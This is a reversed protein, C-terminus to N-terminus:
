PPRTIGKSSPRNCRRASQLNTPCLLGSLGLKSLTRSPRLMTGRSWRGSSAPFTKPRGIQLYAAVYATRLASPNAGFADWHIGDDVATRFAKRFMAWGFQDKLQLFMGVLPDERGQREHFVAMQPVLAYEIEVATMLPFPSRHNAWWDVPWGGSVVAGTFLNVMEHTILIHAWYAKIGHDSGSFADYSCGIGPSEKGTIARVEGINGAAFGGGTREWVLLTYKDRPPRLGWSECLKEYAKDAYDYLAEIDAKHRTFQDQRAFWTWHKGEHIKKYNPGQARAASSLSLLALVIALRCISTPLM